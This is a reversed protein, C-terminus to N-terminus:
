LKLWDLPIPSRPNEITPTNSTMVEKNNRSSSVESIGGLKNVRLRVKERLEEMTTKLREMDGLDLKNIYSRLDDCEHNPVIEGVKLDRSKEDDLKQSLLQFQQSLQKVQSAHYDAIYRASDCGSSGSACNLYHNTVMNVSPSGFSYAKGGNNLLVVAMNAGCLTSLESAKKFLGNRRKSFTIRRSTEDEIMKIAIKKRGQTKKHSREM